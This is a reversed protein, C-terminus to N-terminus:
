SIMVTPFVADDELCPFFGKVTIGLECEFINRVLYLKYFAM